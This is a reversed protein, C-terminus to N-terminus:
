ATQWAVAFYSTGAQGLLTQDEIGIVPAVPVVLRHKGPPDLIAVDLGAQTQLRSCPLPVHLRAQMAACVEVTARLADRPLAWAAVGGLCLLATALLLAPGPRGWGKM